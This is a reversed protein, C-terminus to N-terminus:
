AWYSNASDSWREHQRHFMTAAPASPWKPPLLSPPLAPDLFPFRRWAHVLRVQTVFIVDPTKPSAASFATLFSRYRKAVDDLVWARRVLSRVDGIAATPGVWSFADINLESVVAAVEKEKEVHPTVWVGPLPSGLGAWALRTRMQHRLRRHAEPVSVTLVFWRDDWDAAERLLGYIREAGEELLRRGKKTLSQQTRRGDRTAVILGENATRAIAQRAAKEEIGLQRLGTVLPWTWVSGGAPLVFEGLV